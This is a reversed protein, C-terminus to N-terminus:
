LTSPRAPRSTRSTVTTAFLRQLASRLSQSPVEKFTAEDWPDADVVEYVPVEGLGKFRSMGLKRMGVRLSSGSAEDEVTFVVYARRGERALYLRDFDGLRGVFDETAVMGENVLAHNANIYAYFRRSEEQRSVLEASRRLIPAFFKNVTTEPYGQGILYTKFDDIERSAKGTALRSLEVLGHGFFEYRTEAGDDVLPLLRYHGYNMALRLGRDFPFGQELAHVYVRQLHVAVLLVQRARRGSFFAGDGLYKELRLQHARAVRNVRRQFRFMMRFAQEVRVTEARDLLSLTASFDSIDYVLGYRHVLPDVVLPMTFDYPRTASSVHLVPPGGVWTTNTSRDRSILGGNERELPVVMRRLAHLVEFEKLKLLLSEWVAVQEGSPFRRRDYDPRQSLFTLYGPYTLPSRSGTEAEERAGLLSTLAGRLVPDETVARAHWDAVAKLRQRLDRGDIRLHGNFYSTLESLDPSVHDETLILVNDRMRDLLAPFLADEGEEVEAALRHVVDYTLTVVRDILKLFVRYKIADGRRRGFELDQRVIRRPIEKLRRAVMLSHMLWFIGAYLQSQSAAIVNETVQNLLARYREWRRAYTQSDFGQRREYAIQAEEESKLYRELAEELAGLGRSRLVPFGILPTASEDELFISQPTPLVREADPIVRRIEEPDPRLFSYLGRSLHELLSSPM